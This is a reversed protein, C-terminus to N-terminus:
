RLFYSYFRSEPTTGKMDQYPFAYIPDGESVSQRLRGVRWDKSTSLELRANAHRDFGALSKKSKEWVLEGEGQSKKLLRLGCLKNDRARIPRLNEAGRANERLRSTPLSSEAWHDNNHGSFDIRAAPLRRAFSRPWSLFWLVTQKWLLLIKEYYESSQNTPNNVLSSTDQHNAASRQRRWGLLVLTGSNGLRKTQKVNQSM